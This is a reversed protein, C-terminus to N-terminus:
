TQLVGKSPNKTDLRKRVSKGATAQETVLQIRNRKGRLRGDRDEAMMDGSTQLLTETKGKHGDIDKCRLRQPSTCIRVSLGRRTDGGRPM